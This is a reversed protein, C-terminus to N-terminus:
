RAQVTSLCWLPGATRGRCTYRPPRHGIGPLRPDRLNTAQEDDVLDLRGVELLSRSLDLAVVLECSLDALSRHQHHGVLDKRRDTLVHAVEIALGRDTVGPDLRHRRDHAPQDADPRRDDRADHRLDELA